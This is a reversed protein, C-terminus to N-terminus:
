TNAMKEYALNYRPEVEPIEAIRKKELPAKDVVDM